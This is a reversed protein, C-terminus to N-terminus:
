ETRLAPLLPSRLTSGIAVAGAAMGILLIGALTLSLSAWPIVSAKSLVHPVIAVSASLAGIALGALLLVANEALVMQALPWRRFGLSRMLALEGRREFISRLLVATLGLTGLVVGLGGLTEFTTLYANEVAHYARLRDVTAVADFGYDALDAELAAKARDVDAVPTDILFASYGGVSPFLQVFRSEAIVLEGQLASGSLMGVIRLRIPQGTDDTLRLDQGLGLHLLWM